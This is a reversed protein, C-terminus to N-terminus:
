PLVSSRPAARPLRLASPLREGPACKLMSNSSASAALKSLVSDPTLLVNVAASACTPSKFPCSSATSEETTSISAPPRFADVATFASAACNASTPWVTRARFVESKGVRTLARRAFTAAKLVDMSPFGLAATAAALASSGSKSVRMSRICKAVKALAFVMFYSVKPRRASRSRTSNTFVVSMASRMIRLRMESSNCLAGMCSASSNVDKMSLRVFDKM